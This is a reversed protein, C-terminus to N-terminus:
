FSLRTGTEGGMLIFCLLNQSLISVVKAKSGFSYLTSSWAIFISYTGIHAPSYVPRCALWYDM